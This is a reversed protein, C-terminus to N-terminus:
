REAMIDTCATGERPPRNQTWDICVYTSLCDFEHRCIIIMLWCQLYMWLCVCLSHSDTCPHIFVSGVISLLPCTMPQKPDIPETLAPPHSHLRGVARQWRRSFSVRENRQGRNMLEMLWWRGRGWPYVQGSDWGPISPHIHTPPHTSPLLAEAFSIYIHSQNKTRRRKTRTRITCESNARCVIPFPIPDSQSRSQRHSADHTRLGGRSPGAM